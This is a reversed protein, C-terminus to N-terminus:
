FRFNLFVGARFEQADHGLGGFDGWSYMCSGEVGATVFGWSYGAQIAPRLEFAAGTHHQTSLYLIDNSNTSQDLSSTDVLLGAGVRPVAFFGTPGGLHVGVRPELEFLGLGSYLHDYEDGFNVDALDPISRRDSYESGTAGFGVQVPVVLPVRWAFDAEVYAGSHDYFLNGAKNRTDLNSYGASLTVNPAPFIMVQSKVAFTTLFLGLLSAACFIRNSRM